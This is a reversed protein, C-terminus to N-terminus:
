RFLTSLYKPLRVLTVQIKSMEQSLNEYDRRISSILEEQELVQEKLRKALLTQERIEDDKNDLQQFL